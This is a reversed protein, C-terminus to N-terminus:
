NLQKTITPGSKQNTVNPSDLHLTCDRHTVAINRMELFHYSCYLAKQKKQTKIVQMLTLSFKIDSLLLHKHLKPWTKTLNGSTRSYSWIINTDCQRSITNYSEWWTIVNCIPFIRSITVKSYLIWFYKSKRMGWTSWFHLFNIKLSM